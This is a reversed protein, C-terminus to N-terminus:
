GGQVDNQRQHKEFVLLERDLAFERAAMIHPCRLRTLLRESPPMDEVKKRLRYDFYECSCRGNATLSHLEVRHMSTELVAGCQPCRDGAQYEVKRRKGTTRPWLKFQCGKPQDLRRNPCLITRGEVLFTTPEGEVQIVKM